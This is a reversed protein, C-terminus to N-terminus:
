EDILEAEEMPLEKVATDKGPMAQAEIESEKFQVEINGAACEFDANGSVKGNYSISGAACYFEASAANGNEVCLEGAATEGSFEMANIGWVTCRGGGLEVAAEEFVYDDPVVVEVEPKWNELKRGLVEIKVEDMYAYAWVTSDFGAGDRCYVMIRDVDGTRLTLSGFDVDISFEPRCPFSKVGEEVLTGKDAGAPISFHHKRPYINERWIQMQSWRGGHVHAAAATGFGLVTLVSGLVATYQIFKRISM